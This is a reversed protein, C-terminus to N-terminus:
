EAAAQLDARVGAQAARTVEGIVLL